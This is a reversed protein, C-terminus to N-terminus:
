TCYILHTLSWKSFRLIYGVVEQSYTIHHVRPILYCTLDKGVSVSSLPFFLSPPSQRFYKRVVNFVKPEDQGSHECTYEGIDTVAASAIYLTTNKFVKIHDNETVTEGDKTRPFLIIMIIIMVELPLSEM